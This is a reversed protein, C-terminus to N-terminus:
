RPYIPWKWIKSNRQDVYLNQPQKKAKKSTEIINKTWKVQNIFPHILKLRVKAPPYILKSPNQWRQPEVFALLSFLGLIALSKTARTPTWASSAPITNSHKTPRNKNPMTIMDRVFIDIVMNEQVRSSVGLLMMGGGLGGLFVHHTSNYQSNLVLHTTHINHLHYHHLLLHINFYQHNVHFISIFNM